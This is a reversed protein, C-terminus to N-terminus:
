RSQLESTHEESRTGVGCRALAEVVFGGVGGIGFIAVRSAALRDMADDGLVSAARSFRNHM